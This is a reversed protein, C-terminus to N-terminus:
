KSVVYGVTGSGSVSIENTNFASNFTYGGNAPIAIIGGNNIAAFISATTSNILTVVQCKENPLSTLTGTLTVNRSIDYLPASLSSKNLDSELSSTVNSYSYGPDMLTLIIISM